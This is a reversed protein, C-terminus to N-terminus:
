SAALGREREAIDLPTAAIGGLDGFFFDFYRDMSDIFAQLDRKTRVYPTHGPELSPSHYTYCFVTAGDGRLAKTLRIHDRADAGEPSLRIRELMGSRALIGPLRLRMAWPLEVLPFLRPGFTRLGGCFGVTLPLELIEGGPTMPRPRPSEARFDPGGDATFATYPVVSADVRYGLSELISATNPGLGYRGAKYIVPRRGFASEIAETLRTLKAAELAKPLNGPYSNFACVQEEDPPTVWPHLHAGILAEGRDQYARLISSATPDAAVPYDVVYTPVIGYRRFVEQGREQAAISTVSRNARGHPASWDFEEETDIIVCLRPRAPGNQETETSRMSEAANM